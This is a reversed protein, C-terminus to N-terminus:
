AIGRREREYDFGIGGIEVGAVGGVCLGLADVAQEEGREEFTVLLHIETAVKGLVPFRGIGACVVEAKPFPKTEM